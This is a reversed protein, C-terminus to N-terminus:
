NGGLIVTAKGIGLPIVRASIGLSRLDPVIDKIFSQVDLAKPKSSKGFGSTTVGFLPFRVQNFAARVRSSGNPRPSGDVTHEQLWYELYDRLEGEGVGPITIYDEMNIPCDDAIKFVISGERGNTAMDAFHKDIKHLFNDMFSSVSEMILSAAPANSPTSTGINGQILKNTAADVSQLQFQIQRRPGMPVNDIALKVMIDANANRLLKDLDDEKIDADNRSVGVLDITAETDLDGLKDELSEMPYGIEAMYDGIAIISGRLDENSLAKKYDVSGDSFTYGNKECWKADPVVMITPKIAQAYLASAGVLMAGLTLLLKKM